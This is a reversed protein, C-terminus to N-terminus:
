EIDSRSELVAIPASPRAHWRNYKDATIRTRFRIRGGSVIVAARSMQFNHGGYRTDTKFEKTVRPVQRGTLSIVRTHTRTHTHTDIGRMCMCAHPFTASVKGNRAARKRTVLRGRPKRVSGRLNGRTFVRAHVRVYSHIATNRARASAM